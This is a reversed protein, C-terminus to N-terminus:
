PGDGPARGGGKGGRTGQDERLGPGGWGWGGRCSAARPTLPGSAFPSDPLCRFMPLQPTLPSMGATHEAVVQGEVAPCLMVWGGVSSPTALTEGLSCRPCKFPDRFPSCFFAPPLPLGHSQFIATVALGSPFRLRM